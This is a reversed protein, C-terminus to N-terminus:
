NLPLPRKTSLCLIEPLILYALFVINFSPGFFAHWPGINCSLPVITNPVINYCTRSTLPNWMIDMPKWLKKLFIHIFTWQNWITQNITWHTENINTPKNMTTMSKWSTENTIWQTENINMTTCQNTWPTCHKQMLAISKCAEMSQWQKANKNMTTWQIKMSKWVAAHIEM